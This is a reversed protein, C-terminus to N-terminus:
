LNRKEIAVPHLSQLIRCHCGYTYSHKTIVKMKSKVNHVARRDSFHSWIVWTAKALIKTQKPKGMALLDQTQEGLDQTQNGKGLKGLRRTHPHHTLILNRFHLSIHLIVTWFNWASLSEYKRQAVSTYSSIEHYLLFSSRNEIPSMMEKFQHSSFNNM